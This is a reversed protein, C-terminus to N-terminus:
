ASRIDALKARIAGYAEAPDDIDQVLREFPCFIVGDKEKIADTEEWFEYHVGKKELARKAPGSIVMAHVESAGMYLNLLVAAKGVVRDATVVGRLDDVGFEDIVELLPSVGRSSSSFIMDGDKFVMLNEGSEVLMQLLSSLPM